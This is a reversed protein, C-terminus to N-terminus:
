LHWAQVLYPSMEQARKPILIKFITQNKRANPQYWAKAHRQTSRGQDSHAGMPHVPPAPVHLPQLLPRAPIPPQSRNMTHIPNYCM